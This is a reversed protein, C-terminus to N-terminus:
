RLFYLRMCVHVYLRRPRWRRFDRLFSCLWPPMLVLALIRYSFDEIRLEPEVWNSELMLSKAWGKGRPAMLLIPYCVDQGICLSTLLVHLLM